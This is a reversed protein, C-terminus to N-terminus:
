FPDFGGLVARAMQVRAPPIHTVAAFDLLRQDNEMLFDLIFVSFEPRAAMERIASADAGAQDLMAAILEADGSIHSLGADAIDRAESSNM